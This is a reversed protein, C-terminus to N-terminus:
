KIYLCMKKHKQILKYVNKAQAATPQKEFLEIISEYTICDKSKHEEFLTELAKNLEKATM